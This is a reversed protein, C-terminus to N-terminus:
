EGEKYEILENSGAELTIEYNTEGSSDSFLLLYNEEQEDLGLSILKWDEGRGEDIQMLFQRAEQVASEPGKKAPSFFQSIGLVGFLVVAALLAFFGSSATFEMNHFDGRKRVPTDEEETKLIGYMQVMSFVSLAISLILFLWVSGLLLIQTIAPRSGLLQGAFTVSLGLAATALTIVKDIHNQIITLRSPAANVEFTGELFKENQEKATISSM